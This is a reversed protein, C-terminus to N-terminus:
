VRSSNTLQRRGIWPTRQATFAGATTGNPLSAHFPLALSMNALRLIGATDPASVRLCPASTARARKAFCPAAIGPGAKRAAASANQRAAPRGIEVCPRIEYCWVVDAVRLVEHRSVGTRASRNEWQEGSFSTRLKDEWEQVAQKRSM